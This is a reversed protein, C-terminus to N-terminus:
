HREGPLRSTIRRVRMAGKSPMPLVPTCSHLSISCIFQVLLSATLRKMSQQVLDVVPQRSSACRSVTTGPEQFRGCRINKPAASALPTEMETKAWGGPDAKVDFVKPGSVV